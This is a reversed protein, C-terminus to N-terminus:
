AVMTGLLVDPVSAAIAAMMTFTEWRPAISGDDNVWSFHDGFWISDFGSAHATKCIALVDEFRPDRGNPGGIIRPVMIGVGM